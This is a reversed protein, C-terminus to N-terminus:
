PRGRFNLQCSAPESLVPHPQSLEITVYSSVQASLSTIIANFIVLKCCLDVTITIGHATADDM